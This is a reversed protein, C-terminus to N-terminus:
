DQPPEVVPPPDAIPAPIPATVPPDTISPVTIAEDLLGLHLCLDRKDPNSVMEMFINPDNDCALRAEASLELFQQNAEKVINVATQYDEVNSYDGYQPSTRAVHTFDGTARYQAMLNNIDCEDKFSQKTLGPDGTCDLVHRSPDDSAKLETM